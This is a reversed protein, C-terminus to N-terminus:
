AALAYGEFNEVDDNANIKKPIKVTGVWVDKCVNDEKSQRFRYAGEKDAAAVIVHAVDV